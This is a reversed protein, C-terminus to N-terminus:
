AAADVCQVPRKWGRGKTVGLHNQNRLRKIRSGVGKYPRGLHGAIEKTSMHWYHSLIFYDEHKSYLRPHTVRLGLRPSRDAVERWYLFEERSIRRHDYAEPHALLFSELDEPFIQWVRYPGQIYPSKVAKLKGSTIWDRVKDHNEGIGMIDMVERMTLVNFKRNIGLRRAKLLCGVVSRGLMAAVTADPKLGWCELLKDIEKDTWRPQYHRKRPDVKGQKILITIRQQVSSYHRSLHTSMERFGCKSYNKVIYNDEEPTFEKHPQM